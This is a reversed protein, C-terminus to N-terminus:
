PVEGLAPRHRPVRRVDGDSPDKSGETRFAAALAGSGRHVLLSGLALFAASFVPIRRGRFNTKWEGRLFLAAVSILALSAAIGRLPELAPFFSFGILALM